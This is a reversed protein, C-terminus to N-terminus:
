LVYKNDYENSFGDITQGKLFVHNAASIKLTAINQFGITNELINIKTFDNNGYFQKNHMASFKM